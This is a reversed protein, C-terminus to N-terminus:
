KLTDRIRRYADAIEDIVLKSAIGIEGAAERATDHAREVKSELRGWKLEVENWEELLESKLLHTRLRLEDREQRLRALLEKLKREAEDNV